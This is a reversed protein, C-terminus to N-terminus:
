LDTDTRKVGDPTAFELFSVVGNFYRLQGLKIFRERIVESIETPSPEPTAGAPAGTRVLMVALSDDEITLLLAEGADQADDQITYRNTRERLEHDVCVYADGTM